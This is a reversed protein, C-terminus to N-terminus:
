VRHQGQSRNPALPLLLRAKSTIIPTRASPYFSSM